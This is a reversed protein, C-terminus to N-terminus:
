VTWSLRLVCPFWSCGGHSTLPFTMEATRTTLIRNKIRQARVVLRDLIFTSRVGCKGIRSHRDKVSLPALPDNENCHHFWDKFQKAQEKGKAAAQVADEDM